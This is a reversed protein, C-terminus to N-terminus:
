EKGVVSLHSRRNGGGRGIKKGIKDALAQTEAALELLDTLLIEASENDLQDWYEEAMRDCARLESRASRVFGTLKLEFLTHSFSGPRATYKGAKGKKRAVPERGEKEAAARVKERHPAVIERQALVRLQRVADASLVGEGRKKWASEAKKLAAPNEALAHTNFSLEARRQDAPFALAANRLYNVYSASYQAYGLAQLESAIESAPADTRAIEDALVWLSSEEKRVLAVIKPFRLKVTRRRKEPRVSESVAIKWATVLKGFGAYCGKEEEV